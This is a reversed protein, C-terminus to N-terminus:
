RRALFVIGEQTITNAHIFVSDSNEDFDAVHITEAVMGTETCTM